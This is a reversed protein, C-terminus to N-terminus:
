EDVVDPLTSEDYEYYRRGNGIRETFEKAQADTFMFREDQEVAVNASADFHYWGDGTDIILWFHQTKGNYREVIHYPIGVKGLLVQSGANYVFCDGVGRTFCVYAAQALERPSNGSQYKVKEAVYTFIAYAKERLTMNDGIIDALIEDAMADVEAMDAEWVTVLGTATAENGSADTATYIVEYEGPQRLKVGSSDIALRPNPDGADSVTIDKRYSVTGGAVASKNLAGEIAPATTDAVILAAEGEFRGSSLTVPYEGEPLKEDASDISISLGPCDIYNVIFEEPGLGSALSGAEVLADQLKFVYCKSRVFSSNGAENTLKVVVDQWNPRNLDPSIIYSFAVNSKDSVDTVFDEPKVSNGLFLYLEAPNGKPTVTDSLNAAATGSGAPLLNTNQLLPQSVESIINAAADGALLCATVARGTLLIVFACFLAGAFYYVLREKTM